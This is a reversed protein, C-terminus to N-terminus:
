SGELKCLMKPCLEGQCGAEDTKIDAPREIVNHNSDTDAGYFYTDSRSFKDLQESSEKDKERSQNSIASDFTRAAKRAHKARPAIM